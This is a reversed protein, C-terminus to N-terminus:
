TAPAEIDSVFVVIACWVSGNILAEAPIERLAIEYQAPEYRVEELRIQWPLYVRGGGDHMTLQVERPVGQAEEPSMPRLEVPGQNVQGAARRHQREAVIYPELLYQHIAPLGSSPLQMQWVGVLQASPAPVLIASLSPPKDRRWPQENTDPARTRLEGLLRDGRWLTLTMGQM